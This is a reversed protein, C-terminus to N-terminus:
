ALVLMVVVAGGCLLGIGVLAGGRFAFGMGLLLCIGGVAGLGIPMVFEADVPMSFSLGSAASRLRENEETLLQNTAELRGREYANDAERAGHYLAFLGLLVVAIIATWNPTRRVEVLGGPHSREFVDPRRVVRRAVSLDDDIAVLASSTKATM